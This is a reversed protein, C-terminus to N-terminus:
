KEEWLKKRNFEKRETELHEKHYNELASNSIKRESSVKAFADSLRSYKAMKKLIKNELDEPKAGYKGADIFVQSLWFYWSKLSDDTPMTGKSEIAILSTLNGILQRLIQDRDQNAAEISVLPIADQEVHYASQVTKWLNFTHRQTHHTGPKDQLKLWSKTCYAWLKSSLRILDDFTSIGFRKLTERRIQFEVRIVNQSIPVKDIEWIDYMWKKGSKQKIELPKDYLRAMISGKGISFGSFVKGQKHWSRKIARTVFYETLRESWCKEPLLIDCYMDVRNVKVTIIKAKAELLITFITEVANITGYKHLTESRIEVFVSPRSSPELWNGIKFLYENNNMIWEYGKSGHPLINFYAIAENDMSQLEIPVEDGTFHAQEKARTLKNFLEENQWAIDLTLVLTDIGSCLVKASDTDIFSVKSPPSNSM